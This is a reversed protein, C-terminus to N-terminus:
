SVSWQEPATRTASITQPDPWALHAAAFDRGSQTSLKREADAAYAALRAAGDAAAGSYVNRLLAERIAEPDRMALTEQYAKMRGFFAEGLRRMTKPVALDGVGMERLNGDLDTCFLDFVGQGLARVAPPESAVRRFFLAVHLVLMDFRGNVTDPVGYDRYFGPSRAQAVIVGYLARITAPGPRGFLSLKMPAMTVPYQTLGRGRPTQEWRNSELYQSLDAPSRIFDVADDIQTTGGPAKCDAPNGSLGPRTAQFKQM